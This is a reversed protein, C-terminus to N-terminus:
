ASRWYLQMAWKALQPLDELRMVSSFDPQGSEVEDHAEVIVEPEGRGVGIEDIQVLKGTLSFDTLRITLDASQHDIDRPGYPHHDRTLVCWQPHDDCPVAMTGM